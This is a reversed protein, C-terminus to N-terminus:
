KLSFARIGTKPAVKTTVPKTSKATKSLSLTNKHSRKGSAGRDDIISETEDSRALKPINSFRIEGVDMKNDVDIEDYRVDEVIAALSDDISIGITALADSAAKTKLFNIVAIPSDQYDVLKKAFLNTVEKAKNMGVVSTQAQKILAEVDKIAIGNKDDINDRKYILKKDELDGIATLLGDISNSLGQDRAALMDFLRRIYSSAVEAKEDLRIAEQRENYDNIQRLYIYLDDSYATSLPITPFIRSCTRLVAVVASRAKGLNDATASAFFNLLEEVMTQIEAVNFLSIFTRTTSTAPVDLLETIILMDTTTADLGYLTTHLAIIDQCLEIIRKSDGLSFASKVTFLGLILVLQKLKKYMSSITTLEPMYFKVKEQWDKSLNGWHYKAYLSGLSYDIDFITDYASQKCTAKLGDEGAVTLTELDLALTYFYKIGSISELLTDNQVLGGLSVTFEIPESETVKHKEEELKVIQKLIGEEKGISVRNRESTKIKFIDNTYIKQAAALNFYQVGDIIVTCDSIKREVGDNILAQVAVVVAYANTYFILSFLNYQGGKPTLVIHKIEHLKRNRYKGNSSNDQMAEVDSGWIPNDKTPAYFYPDGDISSISTSTITSKPETIASVRCKIVSTAYALTAFEASVFDYYTYAVDNITKKVKNAGNTIEILASFKNVLENDTVICSRTPLDITSAVHTIVRRKAVLKNMGVKSYLPYFKNLIRKRALSMNTDSINLAKLFAAKMGMGDSTKNMNLLKLQKMQSKVESVRSKFKDIGTEWTPNLVQMAYTRVKNLERARARKRKLVNKFGVTDANKKKSAAEFEAITPAKGIKQLKESLEADNFINSSPAFAGGGGVGFVAGDVRQVQEPQNNNGDNVEQLMQTRDEKQMNYNITDTTSITTDIGGMRLKNVEEEWKADVDYDSDSRIM